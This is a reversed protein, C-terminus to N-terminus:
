FNLPVKSNEYNELAIKKDNLDLYVKYYNKYLNELYDIIEKGSSFLSYDIGNFTYSPDLYLIEKKINDIQSLLMKIYSDVREKSNNNMKNLTYKKIQELVDIKSVNVSVKTLIPVLYLRFKKIFSNIDNYDIEKKGCLYDIINQKESELYSIIENKTNEDKSYKLINLLTDLDKLIEYNLKIEEGNLKKIMDSILDLIDYYNMKEEFNNYLTNKLAELCLVTCTYVTDNSSLSLGENKVTLENNYKNVILTVKRKVEDKDLGIYDISLIERALDLIHEAEKSLKPKDEKPEEIQKTDDKKVEDTFEKKVSFNPFLKQVLEDSITPGKLTFYSVKLISLIEKNALLKESPMCSTGDAFMYWNHKYTFDIRTSSNGFGSLLNRYAWKNNSKIILNLFRNIDNVFNILEKETKYTLTLNSSEFLNKSNKSTGGLYLKSFLTFDCPITINKIPNKCSFSYGEIDKTANHVTLSNISANIGLYNFDFAQTGIKLNDGDILIDLNLNYNDGNVISSNALRKVKKVESPITLNYSKVDHFVVNGNDDMEMYNDYPYAFSVGDKEKFLKISNTADVEYNELLEKFLYYNMYIYSLLISNNYASDLLTQKCILSNTKENYEWELPKIEVPENNIFIFKRDEYIYEDYKAIEGKQIITRKNGTKVCNSPTINFQETAYSLPYTGFSINKFDLNGKNTKHKEIFPILSANSKIVPRISNNIEGSTNSATLKDIIINETVIYNEAKCALAAPKAEKLWPYERLDNTTPFTMYIRNM